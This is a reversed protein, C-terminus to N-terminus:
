ESSDEAKPVCDKCPEMGAAEADEFTRFYVRNEEPIRRVYLCPARHFVNAGREAICLYEGESVPQPQHRACAVVLVVMIPLVLIIAVIPKNM